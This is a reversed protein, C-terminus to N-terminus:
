RVEKLRLIRVSRKSIKELCDHIKSQRASPRDSRGKVECFFWNTTEPQYVFLDPVGARNSMVFDFTELDVTRKFIEVKRTHKATEYKEMLSHYGTSERLLVAALWEFFHFGQQDLALRYDHEDFMDGYARYWKEVLSGESFQSRRNAHYPFTLDIPMPLNETRTPTWGSRM